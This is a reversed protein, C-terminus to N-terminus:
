AQAPQPPEPVKPLSSSFALYGLIGLNVLPVIVLIGLWGPKARREAIKMWVLATIVISVLPIFLLLVWWYSKGAVKVMLFFNAVPIWALWAHPTNTKQAIVGLCYASFAYIALIFLFEM